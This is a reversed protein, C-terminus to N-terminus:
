RKAAFQNKPGSTCMRESCGFKTEAEVLVGSDKDSWAQVVAGPAPPGGGGPNILGPAFAHIFRVASLRERFFGPMLETELHSEIESEARWLGGVFFRVCASLPM